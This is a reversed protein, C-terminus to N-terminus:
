LSWINHQKSKAFRMSAVIALASGRQARNWMTHRNQYISGVYNKRDTVKIYNLPQRSNPCLKHTLNKPCNLAALLEFLLSELMQNIVNPTSFHWYHKHRLGCFVLVDGRTAIHDIGMVKDRFNNMQHETSWLPSSWLFPFINSPSESIWM